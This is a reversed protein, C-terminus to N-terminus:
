VRMLLDIMEKVASIVRANAGYATQLQLLRAMEADINVSTRESFREQLANVVIDQGERLRQANEAAAGQMSIAQRIFDSLSGQYPRTSTGIGSAPSYTWAVATLQQDLFQPRAPDGGPTGPAYSVLRSSDAKLQPNVAIRSAFGLKQTGTATVFSTYLSNSGGDVFFPFSLEGADFTSATISAEFINVDVLNPAGDDLVQLVSGSPNDFVLGTASLATNLAAVVAGMGGSFDVGIVNDNPDTTFGNGLPLAGADDVRVISVRQQQGSVNDTYVLTIVNGNKLEALDLDFGAAAGSTTADGSVTRNSMALALAHAIEDIQAQAQVLIQDRMELNAAIEGSRIAKDAILDLEYGTPTVLKITGVQRLNADMNWLSQPAITDRSDFSLRAAKHDFLSVGSNTFISVQGREFEVVRVDMLKSLEAILSDRTDLLGASESSAASASALHGSIGEISQLIENVRNVASSISIEAQTRLEQIDGSMANLQQALVAAQNLVNTRMAISEPSTVLSRLSNSFNNYLTDLSNLGGPQGYIQAIRQYFDDVKTAYSAGALEARLQRQVFIDLERTVGLLQVGGSNFAASGQLISKRIHGPTEANAINDAILGVGTQTVRLGSLAASIANSLSM